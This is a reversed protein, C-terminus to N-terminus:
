SSLACHMCLPALSSVHVPNGGCASNGEALMNAAGESCSSVLRLSFMPRIMLHGTMSLHVCVVEVALFRSELFMSGNLNMVAGTKMMDQMLYLKAVHQSILGIPSLM